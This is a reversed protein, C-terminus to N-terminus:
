EETLRFKWNAIFLMAVIWAFVIILNQPNNLPSAAELAIGRMIRLLPALPLYQVISFLWKPLQDISFFVGALFMMPVTVATSMGEAAQTTKSLGAVAFGIAQFLLAGVLSFVYILVLSGNFNAGFAYIGLLIILSIQVFNSVLRSLIEAGIFTRTPLPTSTIRKLIKDERYKSMAIAVGQISSNMLAMGILGVLIFDFYSFENTTTEEEEVQYIPVANQVQFNVATLYQNLFGSIISKAQLNAPDYYLKIKTPSGSQGNGFGEPIEILGVVTNSKLKDKAKKLDTDKMVKLVKSQELTETLKGALQTNSRNIVSVTASASSEGFFFGFIVTFILPFALTWFLAQKNRLIMKLDALFLQYM